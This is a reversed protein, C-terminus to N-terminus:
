STQAALTALGGFFLAALVACVVALGLAMGGAQALGTTRLLLRAPPKGGVASFFHQESENLTVRLTEAAPQMSNRASELDKYASNTLYGCFGYVLVLFGHLAAGHQLLEAGLSALAWFAAVAGGVLAGVWAAFKTFALGLGGQAIASAIEGQVWDQAQDRALGLLAGLLDPLEDHFSQLRDSVDVSVSRSRESAQRASEAVVHTIQARQDIPLGRAATLAANYGAILDDARAQLNTAADGSSARARVAPTPAPTALAKPRALVAPPPPRPASQEPAHALSAESSWTYRWTADDLREKSVLHMGRARMASEHTASDAEPVTVSRMSMLALM